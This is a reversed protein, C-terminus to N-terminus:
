IIKKVMLVKLEFNSTYALSEVSISNPINEAAKPKFPKKNGLWNISPPAVPMDRRILSTYEKGNDHSSRMILVGKISNPKLCTDTLNAMLDKIAM